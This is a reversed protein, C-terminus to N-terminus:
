SELSKFYDIDARALSTLLCNYFWLAVICALLDSNYDWVKIWTGFTKGWFDSTLNSGEVVLNDSFLDSGFVGETFYFRPKNAM